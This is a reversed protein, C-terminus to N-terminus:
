VDDNRRIVGADLKFMDLPYGQMKYLLPVTKLDARTEGDVLNICGDM